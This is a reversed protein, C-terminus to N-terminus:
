SAKTYVMCPKGNEDVITMTTTPGGSKGSPNTWTVKYDKKCTGCHAKTNEKCLEMAMKPNKITIEKQSGHMKCVLTLKDGAKLDSFQAKSTLETGGKGPPMAFVASSLALVAVTTALLAKLTKM